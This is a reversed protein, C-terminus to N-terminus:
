ANPAKAFHLKATMQVLSDEVGKGVPGQVLITKTEADLVFARWVEDCDIMAIWVVTRRGKFLKRAKVQIKKILENM